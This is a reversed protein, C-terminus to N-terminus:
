RIGAPQARVVSLDDSCIGDVGTARLAHADDGDNVTWVIVRGGAEHIRDVLEQDVLEASQWYDRAGASRLAAVPDLLYSSTLIGTQVGPALSRARRVTAHDFSHLAYRARTGRLCAIVHSEITRAKIEVYLTSRDGVLEVVEALTPIHSGDAFRFTKVEAATLSQIPRGHLARNPSEGRAVYDHHVVVVGDSTAHTDLEIGDAGLELAREFAPLTNERRERSAGRHAILETAM